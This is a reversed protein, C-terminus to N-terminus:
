YRRKDYGTLYLTVICRQGNKSKYLSLADGLVENPIEPPLNAVRVRKTGMGAVAVTVQCVEGTPYKYEVQGDTGRLIAMVKENDIM